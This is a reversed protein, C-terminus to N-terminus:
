SANGARGKLWSRVAESTKATDGVWEEKEGVPPPTGTNRNVTPFKVGKNQQEAVFADIHAQQSTRFKEIAATMDFGNRRGIVMVSEWEVTDEQFGADAMEKQIEAVRQDVARQRDSDAQAKNILAQADEAGFTPANEPGDDAEPKTGPAGPTPEAAPPAEGGNLQEALYAFEEAAKGRVGEDPSSAMAVVKLLYEQEQQSYGGFAETYPKSKVRHGASEENLEKVKARVKDPDSYWDDSTDAEPAPAPAPADEIPTGPTSLAADVASDPAIEEEAM